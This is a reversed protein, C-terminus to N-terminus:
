QLVPKGVTILQETVHHDIAVDLGVFAQRPM